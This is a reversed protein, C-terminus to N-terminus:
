VQRGLATNFEHIITNEIDIEANTLGQGAVLFAIEYSSFQQPSSTNDPRRVYNCGYALQTLPNNSADINLYTKVNRNAYVGQAISIRGCYRYGANINSSFSPFSWDQFAWYISPAIGNLVIASQNIIDACALITNDGNAVSTRNYVAISGNGITMENQPIFGTLAYGDIGNSKMGNESHSIGGYYQLQFKTVDKLNFSHAQANGGVIPNIIKRKSWIGSTKYSEVLSVLANIINQNLISTALLYNQLDIDYSQNEILQRYYSM